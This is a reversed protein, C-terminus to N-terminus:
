KQKQASAPPFSSLTESIIRLTHEIREDNAPADQLFFMDTSASAIGTKSGL